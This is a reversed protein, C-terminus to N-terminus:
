GDNAREQALQIARDVVGSIREVGMTMEDSDVGGLLHECESAVDALAERMTPAAAKEEQTVIRSVDYTSRVWDLADVWTALVKESSRHQEAAHSRGTSYAREAFSAQEMRQADVRARKKGLDELFSREAAGEEQARAIAAALEAIGDFVPVNDAPAEAIRRELGTLVKQAAGLMEETPTTM